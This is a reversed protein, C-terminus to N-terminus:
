DRPHGEDLKLANARTLQGSIEPNPKKAVGPYRRRLGRRLTTTGRLFPAVSTHAGPIRRRVWERRIGATAVRKVSCSAKVFYLRSLEIIILLQTLRHQEPLQQRFRCLESRLRSNCRNYKTIWRQLTLVLVTAHLRLDRVRLLNPSTLVECVQFDLHASREPFSRSIAEMRSAM